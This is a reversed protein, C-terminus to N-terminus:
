WNLPPSQSVAKTPTDVPVTNWSTDIPAMAKTTDCDQLREQLENIKSEQQTLNRQLDITADELRQHRNYAVGLLAMIGLLLVIVVAVLSYIVGRSVTSM